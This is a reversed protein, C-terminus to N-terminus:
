KSGTNNINLGYYDPSPMTLNLTAGIMLVADILQRYQGKDADASSVPHLFKRGDSLAIEKLPLVAFKIRLKLTEMDEGTDDAVVKLCAHFYSEQQRSKRQPGIKVECGMGDKQLYNVCNALVKEDRIIFTMM